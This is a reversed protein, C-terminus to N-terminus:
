EEGAAVFMICEPPVGPSDGDDCFDSADAFSSGAVTFTGTVMPAFSYSLTFSAFSYSQNIAGVAAAMDGMEQVVQDRYTVLGVLMGLVVITSLIMLDTSVVFGQEDRWLRNIAQM